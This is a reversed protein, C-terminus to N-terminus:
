FTPTKVFFTGRLPEVEDEIQRLIEYHVTNPGSRWARFSVVGVFIDRFQRRTHSYQVLRGDPKLFIASVDGTRDVFVLQSASNIKSEEPRYGPFLIEKAQNLDRHLIRPLLLIQSDMEMFHMVSIGNRLWQVGSAIFGVLIAALGASVVLEVITFGKLASKAM